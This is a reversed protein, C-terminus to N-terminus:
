DTSRDVEEVVGHKFTAIAYNRLISKLRNRWEVQLKPTIGFRKRSSCHRTVRANRRSKTLKVSHSKIDIGSQNFPFRSDCIQSCDPAITQRFQLTLDRGSIWVLKRSKFLPDRKKLTVKM